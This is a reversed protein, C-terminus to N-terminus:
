RLFYSVGVGAFFNDIGGNPSQLGANSIHRFKVQYTLMWNRDVIQHVGAFLNDSFIFGNAQLDTEINIYHPGISGGIFLIAKQPIYYEYAIGLNVGTEFLFQNYGTIPLVPNFQPQVYLTAQHLGNNKILPFRFNAQILIPKYGNNISEPLVEEVIPYDILLGATPLRNLPRNNQASLSCMMLLMAASLLLLKQM